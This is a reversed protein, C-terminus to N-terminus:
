SATTDSLNGGKDQNQCCKYNYADQVNSWFMITAKYILTASSVNIVTVLASTAITKIIIENM